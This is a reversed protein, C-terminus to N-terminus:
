LRAIIKAITAQCFPDKFPRLDLQRLPECTQLSFHTPLLQHRDRILIQLKLFSNHIIHMQTKHSLIRHFERHMTRFPTGKKGIFRRVRLIGRIVRGMLSLCTRM